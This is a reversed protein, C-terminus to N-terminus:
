NFLYKIGISAYWCQGIAHNYTWTQTNGNIAAPTSFTAYGDADHGEFNLIRAESGIAPNLYKSVGWSSNFLNLLNKIDLNLQLTNTTNGIRVTFDHKYSLDVRHVWPNYVSYAEAYQGQHKSLYADKHVYDMFRAADDATVFRFQNSAVDQDTPVYIADYNYGDGNMDNTLMYSYNYGGRWTEYIVSYHNGSKDNHTLSAVFRDPTVYQSNHLPIYNPGESTPVYTFASEAASGPMGTIEKNVTHTYAAMLSLGEIPRM